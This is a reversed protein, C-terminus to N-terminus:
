SFTIHQGGSYYADLSQSIHTPLEQLVREARCSGMLNVLHSKQQSQMVTWSEERERVLTLRSFGNWNVNQMGIVLYHGSEQTGLGTVSLIMKAEEKEKGMGM